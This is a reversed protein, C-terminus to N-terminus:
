NEERSVRQSRTSQNIMDQLDAEARAAARTRGAPYLAAEVERISSPALPARARAPAEVEESVM